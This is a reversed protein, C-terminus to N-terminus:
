IAEVGVLRSLAEVEGRHYARHCPGCMWTVELPRGYDEHHGQAEASGCYVCPQRVLKGAKLATNVATRARIHDPYRAKHQQNSRIHRRKGKASQDYRRQSAKGAWDSAPFAESQAYAV